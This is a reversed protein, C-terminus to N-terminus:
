KKYISDYYLNSLTNIRNKIHKINVKGGGGFITILDM